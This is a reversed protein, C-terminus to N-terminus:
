AFRFRLQRKLVCFRMRTTAVGEKLLVGRGSACLACRGLSAISNAQVARDFGPGTVFRIRSVLELSLVKEREASVFRNSSNAADCSSAAITGRDAASEKCGSGANSIDSANDATSRGCMDSSM